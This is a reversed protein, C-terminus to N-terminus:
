FLSIYWIANGRRERLHQTEGELARHFRGMWQEAADPQLAETVSRNELEVAPKGFVTTSDGFVRAFIGGKGALWHCAPTQDLFTDALSRSQMDTSSNCELGGSGAASDPLSASHRMWQDVARRVPEPRQHIAIQEPTEAPRAIIQRRPHLPREPQGVRHPLRAQRRIMIM